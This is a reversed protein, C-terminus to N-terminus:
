HRGYLEHRILRWHWPINRPCRAMGGLHLLIRFWGHRLTIDAM